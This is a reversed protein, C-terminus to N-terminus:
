EGQGLSYGRQGDFTYLGETKVIDFGAAAIRQQLALTRARTVPSNGQAAVAKLRAPRQGLRADAADSGHDGPRNQRRLRRYRRYRGDRRAEASSLVPINASSSHATPAAARRPPLYVPLM